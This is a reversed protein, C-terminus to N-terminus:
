FAGCLYVRGRIGSGRLGFDSTLDVGGIGQRAYDVQAVGGAAAEAAADHGSVAAAISAHAAAAGAAAALLSAYPARADEDARAPVALTLMRSNLPAARHVEFNSTADRTNLQNRGAFSDALSLTQPSSVALTAPSFQFASGIDLERITRYAMRFDVPVFRV